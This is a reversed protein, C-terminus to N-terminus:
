FVFGFNQFNKLNKNSFSFWGSTAQNKSLVPSGQLDSLKVSNPISDLDVSIGSDNNLKSSTFRFIWYENGKM